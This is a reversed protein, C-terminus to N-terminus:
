GDKNNKLHLPLSFEHESKIVLTLSVPALNIATTTSLNMPSSENPVTTLLVM